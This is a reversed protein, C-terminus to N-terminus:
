FQCITGPYSKLYTEVSGILINNERCEIIIGRDLLLDIFEVNLEGIYLNCNEKLFDAIYCIGSTSKNLCKDYFAGYEAIGKDLIRDINDTSGEPKNLWCYLKNFCNNFETYCCSNPINNNTTAELIKLRTEISGLINLCCDLNLESVAEEYKLFTEVSALVYIGCDPCCVNCNPVFLGQDLIAIIAESFSIRNELGLTALYANEFLYELPHKCPVCPEIVPTSCQM